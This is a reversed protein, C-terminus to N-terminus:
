GEAGSTSQCHNWDLAMTKPFVYPFNIDIDNRLKEIPTLHESSSDETESNQCEKTKM